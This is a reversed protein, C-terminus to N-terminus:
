LLKTRCKKDELDQRCSNRSIIARSVERPDALPKLIKNIEKNIKNENTKKTKQKLKHSKYPIQIQQTALNDSKKNKESPQNKQQKPLNQIPKRTKQPTIPQIHYRRTKPLFMKLILTHWHYSIELDCRNRKLTLTRPREEQTSPRRPEKM